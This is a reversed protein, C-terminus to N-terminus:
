SYFSLKQDDILMYRRYNKVNKLLDIDDILLINAPTDLQCYPVINIAHKLKTCYKEEFHLGRISYVGINLIPSSLSKNQFAIFLCTLIKSLWLKEYHKLPITLHKKILNYTIKFDPYQHLKPSFNKALFRYYPYLIHYFHISLEAQFSLININQSLIDHNKKLITTIFKRHKYNTIIEHNFFEYESKYCKFHTPSMNSILYILILLCGTKDLSNKNLYDFHKKIKKLIPSNICIFDMSVKLDNNSFRSLYRRSCISLIWSSLDTVIKHEININYESLFQIVKKELLLSDYKLFQNNVQLDTNQLYFNYLVIISEINGKFTVYPTRIVSIKIPILRKDMFKLINFLKSSSIYLNSALQEFTLGTKFFCSYLIDKSISKSFYIRQVEGFSLTKVDFVVSSNLIFICGKPLEESMEILYKNLTISSIKLNKTLNNKSVEGNNEIALKVIGIKCSISKEYILSYM